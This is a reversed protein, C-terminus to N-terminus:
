KLSHMLTFSQRAIKKPNEVVEGMVANKLEPMIEIDVFFKRM